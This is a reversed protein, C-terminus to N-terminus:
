KQVSRGPTGSAHAKTMAWIMEVTRHTQTPEPREGMIPRPMSQEVPGTVAASHAAEAEAGAAGRELRGVLADLDGGAAAVGVAEVVVGGAPRARKM